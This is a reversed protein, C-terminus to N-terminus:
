SLPRLGCWVECAGGERQRDEVKRQMGATRRGDCAHPPAPHPHDRQPVDAHPRRPPAGPLGAGREVARAQGQGQGEQGQRGEGGQAGEEGAALLPERPGMCEAAVCLSLSAYNLMVRYYQLVVCVCFWLDAHGRIHYMSVRAEFVGLKVRWTLCRYSPPTFIDHQIQPYAETRTCTAYRMARRPHGKRMSTHPRCRRLGM